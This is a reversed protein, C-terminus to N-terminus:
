LEMIAGYEDPVPLINDEMKTPPKM